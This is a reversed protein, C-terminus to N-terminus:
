FWELWCHNQTHTPIEGYKKQLSKDDHSVSLLGGNLVADAYYTLGALLHVKTM